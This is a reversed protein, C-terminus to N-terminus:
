SIKTESGEIPDFDFELFPIGARLRELHFGNRYVDKTHIGLTQITDRRRSEVRVTMSGTTM